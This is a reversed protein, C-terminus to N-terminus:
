KPPPSWSAYLSRRSFLDFHEWVAVAAGQANMAIGPHASSRRDPKMPRPTGWGRIPDYRNTWIHPLGFADSKAWVAIVRGSRDGAVKVGEAGSALQVPRSWGVNDPVYRAVWSESKVCRREECRRELWAAYVTGKGDGTLDPYVVEDRGGDLTEPADWGTM